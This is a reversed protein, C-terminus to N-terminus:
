RGILLGHGDPDRILRARAIRFGVDSREVITSSTPSGGAALARATVAGVDSTRLLTQWHALDNARLDAPAPRGDRPALYELLEVGPGHPARLATIRLRAGFVANLREQEPGYNESGGAVRLGLADRWFRITKELDTARVGIHVLMGTM